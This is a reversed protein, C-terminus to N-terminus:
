YGAAPSCLNFVPKGALWGEFNEMFLQASLRQWEVVDGSVHPTLIANRTTWLPSEAPLPEKNFVDLTASGLAGSELRAIMAAEDVIPGRALNVLHAGPKMRALMAEDFLGRSQPTSPLILIVFDAEPLRAAMEDIGITEDAAPDPAGSRRVGITRVGFPKLREATMRGIRGLGVIMAVHGEAMLADHPKWVKEAQYRAYMPMRLVQNLVAWVAYESMAQAHIGSANTVMLRQDDWPVLHDIGAGTASVWKVSPANFILDKPYPQGPLRFALVVDPKESELASALQGPADVLVIRQKPFRARMRDMYYDSRHHQVLLVVDEPPKDNPIQRPPMAEGRITPAVM